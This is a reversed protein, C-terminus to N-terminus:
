DNNNIKQMLIEIYFITIGKVGTDSATWPIYENSVLVDEATLDTQVCSFQFPPINPIYEQIMLMCKTGEFHASYIAFGEGQTVPEPRM